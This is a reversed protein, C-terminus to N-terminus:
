LFLINKEFDKFINIPDEKILSQYLGDARKVAEETINKVAIEKEGDLTGSYKIIIRSPKNIPDGNRGVINVTCSGGFAKYIKWSIIHALITYIKGSHNLPNKGNVAEINSERNLSILGSYKNGRGVAGYDGKDLATGFSTLYVHEDFDKTNISLNFIAKPNESNLFEAIFTELRNKITLLNEQYFSFSPTLKSIYPICIVIEFSTEARTILVKVDWGTAPFEEKFKKSNILNELEISLRETITFPAFGSCMVTDNSKNREPSSVVEQRSNPSYFSKSHEKGVGSNTDIVYEVHELIPQKTFIRSFVGEASERLIKSVDISQDGFTEVVKGFLYIRITKLVRLQGFDLEATGGSLVIKDVWHNLICNFKGLCYNSYKKSFEEAVLDALTDPHGIGKREVVESKSEAFSQQEINIM